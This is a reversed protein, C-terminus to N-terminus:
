AAVMFLVGPIITTSVDRGIFQWSLHAERRLKKYSRKTLDWLQALLKFPKNM